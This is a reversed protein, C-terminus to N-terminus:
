PLYLRISRIIRGQIAKVSGWHLLPCLIGFTVFFLTAPKVLVEAFYTFPHSWHMINLYFKICNVINGHFFRMPPFWVTCTPMFALGYLQKVLRYQVNVTVADPNAKNYM